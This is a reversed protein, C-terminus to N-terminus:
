HGPFYDFSTVSSMGETVLMTMSPRLPLRHRFSTFHYGSVSVEYFAKQATLSVNAITGPSFPFGGDREESGWKTNIMANRIVTNQSFRPNIHLAYDALDCSGPYGPLLNISFDRDATGHIYATSGPEM